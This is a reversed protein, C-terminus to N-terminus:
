NNRMGRYGFLVLIGCSGCLAQRNDLSPILYATFLIRVRFCSLYFILFESHLILQEEHGRYGFLVPIDGSSCLAWRDDLLANLTDISLIM